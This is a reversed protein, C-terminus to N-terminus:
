AKNLEATREMAQGLLAINGGTYNVVLRSRKIKWASGDFEYHNTYEGVVTVVDDPSIINIEPNPFIVHDASLYATCAPLNGSADVRHNTIFHRTIDFGNIVGQLVKMWDDARRAVDPSGTPDSISGYDIYVEDSFCARVLDWDKSDLGQAYNNYNDIFANRLEPTDEAASM